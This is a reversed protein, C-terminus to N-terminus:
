SKEGDTQIVIGGFRAEDARCKVEDIYCVHSEREEHTDQYLAAFGGSLSVNSFSLGRGEEDTARVFCSDCVYRPYRESFPVPSSCIPCNQTEAM